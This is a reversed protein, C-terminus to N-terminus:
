GKHFAGSNNHIEEIIKDYGSLRDILHIFTASEKLWDEKEQDKQWPYEYSQHELLEGSSDIRQKFVQKQEEDGFAPVVQNMFTRSQEKYNPPDFFLSWTHQTTPFLEALQSVYVPQTTGITAQASVARSDGVLKVDEQQTRKAFEQSVEPGLNDITRVM